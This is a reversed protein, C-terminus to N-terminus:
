KHMNKKYLFGPGKLITFCFRIDVFSKNKLNKKVPKTIKQGFFILIRFIFFYLQFCNTEKRLNFNFLNHFSSLLYLFYM